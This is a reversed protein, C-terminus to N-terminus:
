KLWALQVEDPAKMRDALRMYRESLNSLYDQAKSAMDNLGTLSEIKWLKVLHDIIRAYDWGTYVGIKQTIASFQDFLTPNSGGKGMLVAPMVIQKRMMKEFALIAGNPDINFIESMFSKYAKEHRAEDGAITKCIRSLVDDGAKDALKGTNVHSIKTAREQFSTYIIAQYPDKESKPDFGNYILRHITQEVKKMDARASLYLYKNLLDGHRNEEATWAKSWRVWGSPSLLNGEPNIGELLNFYTQYSPLAEETIMNGILSTIITDPIGAAREQLLKVQDFADPSSMDPLFDTPQWCEDPDVLTNDVAHGVFADLQSIVELNKELEYNIHESKNM